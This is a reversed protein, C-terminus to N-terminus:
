GTASSPAGSRGQLPRPRRGRRCTARREYSLRQDGRSPGSERAPQLDIALEVETGEGPTSRVAARGGHRHLRGVISDRVGRRDSSRRRHRVGVGRDRVFLVVRTPEIEAYLDIRESHAFKAANTMAERAAQVLAEVRSNLPGDGVIVTEIPVGHLEERGAPRWARTRGPRITQKARTDARAFLRIDCHESRVVPWPRWRQRTAPAPRSRGADASRTSAPSGGARRAGARPDARRARLLPQPGSASVVARDRGRLRDPDRCAHGVVSRDPRLVGLAHLLALAFLIRLLSIGVRAFGHARLSGTSTHM